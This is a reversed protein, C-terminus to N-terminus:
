LVGGFQQIHEHLLSKGRDIVAPLLSGGQAEERLTSENVPEGFSIVPTIMLKGPRMLQTIVQGFEALRHKDIQKRRLWTLPHHAWHESVIGSVVCPLLHLGPVYKFFSDFVDLWGDMAKEAGPFVAPDPDRHGAAYYLLAGGAKLHHVADRMAIARSLSDKRSAAFIHDRSHPLLDLFPIRTGIVNLDKRNVHIAVVVGDYAGPHNSVILLPGESPIDKIGQTLAPHCFHSLIWESAKPLGQEALIRDFPAGIRALRNTIGRFLAWFISHYLRKPPLGVATVM